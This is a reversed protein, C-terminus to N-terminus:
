VEHILREPDLRFRPGYLGEPKRVGASIVMSIEAHRPLALLRKVRVADFGGMPCSDYGHATLSLMLTQAVLAAQTQGFVRFDADSGPSRVMPRTLGIMTFTLRRALNMLGFPDRRMVNPILKQYYNAVSAPLPKGGKQMKELLLKRNRDWLDWRSVVVVLEGATTAAPQGLCAQALDQRKAADRVWYLEFTQLNSSTPALTADQLVDRMVAEPIREGNFIRVARRARLVDQFASQHAKAFDANPVLESISGMPASRRTAAMEQFIQQKDDSM